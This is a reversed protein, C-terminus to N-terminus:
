EVHAADCRVFTFFRDSKSFFFESKKPFLLIQFIRPSIRPGHISGVGGKSKESPPPPRNQRLTLYTNPHFPPRSPM